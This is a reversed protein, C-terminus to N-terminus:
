VLVEFWTTVSSYNHITTSIFYYSHMYLHHIFVVFLILLNVPLGVQVCWVFDTILWSYQMLDQLIKGGRSFNLRSICRSRHHSGRRDGQDVAAEETGCSSSREDCPRDSSLSSTLLLSVSAVSRTRCSSSSRSPTVWLPRCFSVSSSQHASFAIMHGDIM